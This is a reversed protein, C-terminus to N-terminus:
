RLVESPAPHRYIIWDPDICEAEPDHWCGLKEALVVSKDNGKVINSVATQWGLTEYAYRRAALAAEKAIGRGESAESWLIWGIEHEPYGLPQWLGVIGHSVDEAGHDCVAWMGFGRMDWHAIELAFDRFIKAESKPGGLYASRESSMLDLYSPWDRMDVGRLTFRETTLVPPEVRSM